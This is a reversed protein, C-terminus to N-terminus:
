VKKKEAIFVGFAIILSGVIMVATPTEKLLLYSFPLTFVPGLYGLIASDSISVKELAWEFFMYAIITSFVAMFLIGLIPILSLSSYKFNYAGFYGLKELLVFPIFTALAVYFSIATLLTSPYEKVMQKIHIFHLTRKVNKSIQGLSIKSWVIYTLFAFNYLLELLNGFMRLKVDTNIQNKSLIPELVIFLTGLTALVIGAKVYKNVKENYFYHGAAVALIPSIVGIIATELAGTYKLGAFALFLSSQGFIGLIVINPFDRKDIPHKKLEILTFPLLIICVILFRLFLFTMVPVYNLTLKIVPVAAGWIINAALFALYALVTQKSLIKKLM